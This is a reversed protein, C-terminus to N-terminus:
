LFIDNPHGDAESDERDYIRQNEHHDRIQFSAAFGQQRHVRFFRAASSPFIIV